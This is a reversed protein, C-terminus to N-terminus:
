RRSRRNSSPRFGRLSGFSQRVCEMVNERRRNRSHARLYLNCNDGAPSLPKARWGSATPLICPNQGLTWDSDTFRHGSMMFANPCALSRLMDKLSSHRRNATAQMLMQSYWVMYGRQDKTVAAPLVNYM